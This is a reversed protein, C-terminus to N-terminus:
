FWFYDEHVARWPHLSSDVFAKNFSLSM